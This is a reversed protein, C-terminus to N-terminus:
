KQDDNKKKTDRDIDPYRKKEQRAKSNFLFSASHFDKFPIFLYDV